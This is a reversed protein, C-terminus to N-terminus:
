TFASSHQARYESYTHQRRRVKGGKAVVFHARTIDGGKPDAVGLLPLVQLLLPMAINCSTFALCKSYSYAIDRRCGSGVGM